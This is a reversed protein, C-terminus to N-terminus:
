KLWSISASRQIHLQLLENLEKYKEKNSSILNLQELPDAKLNYLERPAFPYNQLLKWDGKRVADIPKGGYEMGGERRCFFITREPFTDMKNQVLPYFSIGDILDKNYKVGAADLVSPFIDMTVLVQDHTIGGNIKGPWFICAPVKIGGEYMSGKGSRTNGNNAGLDVRGGNDSTFVIITNEYEGSTKLAQIVKGVGADMQEILAVLRARAESINPERAQVKKVWETLPQIPDHPATYALYLFFPNAKNSRSRVYDVAWNTFIDTAHGKPDVEQENLRMYNLNHRLHTNYDDMMDGLFGHFFDFGRKNPHNEPELGLHWKGVIATHYNEKKLIEPLLTVEQSLYGWSNRRNTRIVGPVGVMEPYKGTLLSARTPSCVSSNAYFNVFRIGGNALADINPTQMDKSGFSGLDHYGLDDAVIILINPKKNQVKEPKFESSLLLPSAFLFPFLYKM